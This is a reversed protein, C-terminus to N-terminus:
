CGSRLYAPSRQPISNCEALSPFGGGGRYGHDMGGYMQYGGRHMRRVIPAKPKYRDSAAAASQADLSVGVAAFSLGACFVSLIKVSTKRLIMPDEMLNLAVVVKILHLRRYDFPKAARHNFKPWTQVAVPPTM